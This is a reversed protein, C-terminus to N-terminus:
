RAKPCVSEAIVGSLGERVAQWGQDQDIRRYQQAACAIEVEGMTTDAEQTIRAQVRVTDARKTLSALDIHVTRGRVTGALRWRDSTQGSAESATAQGQPPSESGTCAAVLVALTWGILNTVRMRM